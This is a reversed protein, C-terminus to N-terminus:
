SAVVPKGASAVSFTSVEWERRLSAMASSSSHSGFSSSSSSSSSSGSVSELVGLSAEGSRQAMGRGDDDCIGCRKFRM